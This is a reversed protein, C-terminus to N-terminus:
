HKYAHRLTNHDGNVTMMTETNCYAVESSFFLSNKFFRGKLQVASAKSFIKLSTPCNYHERERERERFNKTQTKTKRKGM